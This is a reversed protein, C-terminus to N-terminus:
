MAWAPSRRADRPQYGCRRVTLQQAMEKSLNLRMPMALQKEAEPKSFGNGLFDM